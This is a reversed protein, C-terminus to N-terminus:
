IDKCGRRRASQSTCFPKNVDLVGCKQVDSSQNIGVDLVFTDESEGLWVVPVRDEGGHAFSTRVLLDRFVEFVVALVQALDQGSSTSLLNQLLVETLVVEDTELLRDLLIDLIQLHHLADLTHDRLYNFGVDITAHGL